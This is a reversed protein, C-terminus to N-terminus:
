KRPVQWQRPLDGGGTLWEDLDEMASVLVDLSDTEGDAEEPVEAIMNRYEQCLARITKLYKDPIPEM